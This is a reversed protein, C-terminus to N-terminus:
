SMLIVISRFMGGSREAVLKGLIEEVMERSLDEENEAVQESLGSSIGLISHIMLLFPVIIEENSFLQIDTLGLSRFKVWPSMILMFAVQM